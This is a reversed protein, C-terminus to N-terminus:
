FTSPDVEIELELDATHVSETAKTLSELFFRLVCEQEFDVFIM